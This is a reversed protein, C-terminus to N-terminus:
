SVPVRTRTQVARMYVHIKHPSIISVVKSGLGRQGPDGGVQPFVPRIANSLSAARSVIVVARSWLRVHVLNVLAERAIVPM